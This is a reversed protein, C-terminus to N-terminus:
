SITIKYCYRCAVLRPTPIYFVKSPFEPKNSRLKAILNILLAVLNELENNHTQLNM